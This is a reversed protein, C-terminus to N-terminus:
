SEDAHAQAAPRSTPAKRFIQRRKYSHMARDMAMVIWLRKDRGCASAKLRHTRMYALLRSAMSLSFLDRGIAIHHEIIEAELFGEARLGETVGALDRPFLAMAWVKTEPDHTLVGKDVLRRLSSALTKIAHHAQPHGSSDVTGGLHEQPVGDLEFLRLALSRQSGRFGVLQRRYTWFMIVVEALAANPMPVALPLHKPSRPSGQLGAILSYNDFFRWLPPVSDLDTSGRAKSHVRHIIWQLTSALDHPRLKKAAIAANVVQYTTGALRAITRTNYGYVQGHRGAKLVDDEPVLVWRRSYRHGKVM